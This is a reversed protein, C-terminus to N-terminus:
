FVHKINISKFEELSEKHGLMTKNEYNNLTLMFPIKEM